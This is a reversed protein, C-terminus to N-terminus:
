KQTNKESEHYESTVTLKVKATDYGQDGSVYCTYDGEDKLTASLLKLSVDGTKLGGSTADKLGFEVRGQYSTVEFRKARYFMIPADFNDGLYWRVELNEASQSPSLWCPLTIAHGSDASVATKTLVVLNSSVIFCYFM